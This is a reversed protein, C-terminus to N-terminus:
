KDIELAMRFDIAGPAVLRPSVGRRWDDKLRLSREFYGRIIIVTFDIKGTKM